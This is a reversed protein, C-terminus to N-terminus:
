GHLQECNRLEPVKAAETCAASIVFRGRFYYRTENGTLIHKAGADKRRAVYRKRQKRLKECYLMRFESM